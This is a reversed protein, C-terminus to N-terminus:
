RVQLMRSNHSTLCLSESPGDSPPSSALLVYHRQRYWSRSQYLYEGNLVRDAKGLIPPGVPHRATDRFLPLRFTPRMPTPVADALKSGLERQTIVTVVGLTEM